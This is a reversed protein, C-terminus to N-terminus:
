ITMEQCMFNAKHLILWRNIERQGGGIKGGFTKDITTTTTTTVEVRTLIATVRGIPILLISITALATTTPIERGVTRNALYAVFWAMNSEVAVM